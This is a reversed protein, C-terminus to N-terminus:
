IEEFLHDLTLVHEILDTNKENEVLGFTTILSIFVQKPTKTTAQFIALKNNLQEEFSKNTSFKTNYFKVEFLNIVHDNRDIVLDIQTGKQQTTGKKYFSSATSYIGSIGIAKKIQSIHKLCINEYAYGTWIKYAQTQSMGKWSDIGETESNELFQLYFLSYEDTLRYLKTKKKKNFPKYASIFDSQILENIVKTLTGGNTLNTKNIIESRTMGQKKKALARIVAVHNEAHEFLAFYLKSFEDKLLGSDAFCIDDINQAASKGSKIEKLYHPIGGMAMYIQILHYRNLTIKKSRLYTETESLTFPKLNIRKTLRNYLGGTNNVIKRIMWSAASGCVVLVINENVAWSNWFYSLGKLFGSRHSALWPLEDFFIVQKKKKPNQKLHHILIAFAELWTKPIQTLLATPDNDKLQLIFNTLQEKRTANKIGTMEFDIHKAYTKKILFTKGVRRRGIVSVFEAESSKLLDNLILQENERGILKTPKM